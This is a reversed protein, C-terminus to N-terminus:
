GGANGTKPRKEKWKMLAYVYLNPASWIGMAQGEGATSHVDIFDLDRSWIWTSTSHDFNVM